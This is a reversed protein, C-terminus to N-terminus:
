FITRNLIQLDVLLVFTNKLFLFSDDHWKLNMVYSKQENKPCLQLYKKYERM